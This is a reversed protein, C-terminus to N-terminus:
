KRRLDVIESQTQGSKLEVSIERKKNGLVLRIKHKGVKLPWQTLPTTRGIDVGDVFVSASPRSALSLFGLGAMAAPDDVPLEPAKEEKEVKMNPCAGFLPELTAVVERKGAHAPVAVQWPRYCHKELAIAHSQEQVVNPLYAPTTGVEQNDLFVKAGSPTSRVTLQGPLPELKIALIKKENASLTITQTQETFGEHRIILVHEQAAPLRPETYDRDLPGKVQAGDLLVLSDDPTTTISLSAVPPGALEEKKHPVSLWAYTAAALLVVVGGLKLANLVRARKAAANTAEDDAAPDDGLLMPKGVQMRGGYPARREEDRIPPPAFSGSRPALAQLPEGRRIRAAPTNDLDSEASFPIM